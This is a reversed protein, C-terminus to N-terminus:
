LVPKLLPLIEEIEAQRKAIESNFEGTAWLGQTTFVMMSTLTNNLQKVRRQAIESRQQDENVRKQVTELNLNLQDVIGLAQKLQVTQFCDAM